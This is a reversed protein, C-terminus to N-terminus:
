RKNRRANVSVKKTYNVSMPKAGDHNFPLSFQMLRFMVAMDDTTLQCMDAPELFPIPLSDFSVEVAQLLYDHLKQDVFAQAEARTKLADNRIVDGDPLLYLPVLAGHRNTRGLKQPSLPHNAPAVATAYIFSKPGKPNGGLVEVTNVIEGSYDIQPRSVVHKDGTFTFGHTNPRKRLRAIGAGDYFLQMNMSHAIHLAVQWPKTHRHLSISKPLRNPLDPISFRTEGMRWELILIIADTKKMGKHLVLPRWAAGLGAIEKGMGEINVADGDRNVKTVPGTFVPCPLWDDLAPVHVDYVVHVMRDRYIASDSPHTSHFPLARRPDNVTLTVSRTVGKDAAAAQTGDVNVQGDTVHPTLDSITDGNLDQVTARVKVQHTQALAARYAKVDAASLGQPIM